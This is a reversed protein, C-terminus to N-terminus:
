NLHGELKSLSNELVNSSVLVQLILFTNVTTMVDCAKRLDGEEPAWAFNQNGVEAQSTSFLTYM